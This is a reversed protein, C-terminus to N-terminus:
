TINVHRKLCTAKDRRHEFGYMFTRCEVWFLEKHIHQIDFPHSINVQVIITMLM